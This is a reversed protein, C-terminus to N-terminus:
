RSEPGSMGMRECLMFLLTEGEWGDDAQTREGNVTTTM